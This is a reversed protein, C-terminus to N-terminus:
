ISVVSLMKNRIRRSIISLVVGYILAGVGIVVITWRFTEPLLIQLILVAGLMVTSAGIQRAIEGVPIDPKGIITTLAYSALGVSSFAALATAIAAGYWGLTSVLLINLVINVSIYGLNVRFSIDPRDIANITSLLLDGYAALLRSSMLIVLISGGAAFEQGFVTLLTDGVAIAGFFGPVLFLGTFTLGENLYHHVRDYDNNKGLESIEPFLSANISLSILALASAVTWAINYIGIQEQSVAALGIVSLSLGRMVVIDTWAFARTKLAGLWAYKAYATLSQVHRWELRSPRKHLLFLGVGVALVLAIGHGLVLGAVGASFFSLVVIHIGSRLTKELTKVGGSTGVKKYGRLSDLTLDFLARVGVVFAFPVAVELGIFINVQERLFFLGGCLVLYIFLNISHGATLFSSQDVGESIRKKTAQGIASSPITLWFLFAVATSYRGFAGAGLAQTIYWTAIFGVLTSGIQTSFYVVTTRGLQGSV